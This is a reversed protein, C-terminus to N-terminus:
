GVWDGTKGKPLYSILGKEVKIKSVGNYAVKKDKLFHGLPNYEIKNAIAINNALEKDFLEEILEKMKVRRQKNFTYKTCM